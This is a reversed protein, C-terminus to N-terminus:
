RWPISRRRSSEAKQIIALVDAALRELAEDLAVLDEGVEPPMVKAEDVARRVHGGGHKASRKKQARDVLIRRM